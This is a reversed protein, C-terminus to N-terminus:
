DFVLLWWVLFECGRLQCVACWSVCLVMSLMFKILLRLGCGVVRSGFWVVFLFILLVWIVMACFMWVCDYLVSWLLKWM